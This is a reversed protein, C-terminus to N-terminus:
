GSGSFRCPKRPSFGLLHLLDLIEQATLLEEIQHLWLWITTIVQIIEPEDTRFGKLWEIDALSAGKLEPDAQHVDSLFSVVLEVVAAPDPEGAGDWGAAGDFSFLFRGVRDPQGPWHDVQWQPSTVAVRLISILNNLHQNNTVPTM